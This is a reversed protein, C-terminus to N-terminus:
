MDYILPAQQEPYSNFYRQGAEPVGPRTYTNFPFFLDKTDNISMPEIGKVLKWLAEASALRMSGSQTVLLSSVMYKQTNLLDTMDDLFSNNTDPSANARHTALRHFVNARSIMIKGYEYSLKATQWEAIGKVVDTPDINHLKVNFHPQNQDKHLYGLMM